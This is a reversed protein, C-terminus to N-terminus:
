ILGLRDDSAFLDSWSDTVLRIPVTIQQGLIESKQLHRPQLKMVIFDRVLTRGVNFGGFTIDANPSITGEWDMTVEAPGISAPPPTSRVQGEGISSTRWAQKDQLDMAIQRHIFVKIIPESAALERMSQLSGSIHIHFPIADQLGFIQVAPIFFSTHIPSLSPPKCQRMPLDAHRQLWEEPSSKISSFLHPNQLIPLNPRTRPIINLRIKLSKKKFISKGKKTIVVSLTYKCTSIMGSTDAFAYHHSPPLMRMEGDLEIKNPISISFPILSPPTSSFSISSQPPWLIHSVDLTRTKQSCGRPGTIVTHLKGQLKLTVRAVSERNALTVVGNIPTRADYFPHLLGDKQETLVLSVSKNSSGFTGSPLPSRSHRTHLLTEESASPSSTYTPPPASASYSPAALSIMVGAVQSM